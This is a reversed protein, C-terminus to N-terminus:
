EAPIYLRMAKETETAIVGSIKNISSASEVPSAAKLSFDKFLIRSNIFAARVITM